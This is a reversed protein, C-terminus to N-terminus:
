GLISAVPVLLGPLASGGDIVDRGGVTRVPVGQGHVEVTGDDPDVVWVMAAGFALWGRVKQKVESWHDTPSVVEVALVPPHPMFGRAPMAAVGAPDLYAVDPARVTDQSWIFGVDGALVTGGHSDAFPKLAWVVRATIHGHQPGAPAMTIIEGHVLECRGPHRELDAITAASPSTTTM